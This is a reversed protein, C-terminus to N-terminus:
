RLSTLGRSLKLQKKTEDIFGSFEAKKKEIYDIADAKGLNLQIRLEDIEQQLHKKGLDFKKSMRFVVARLFHDSVSLTLM